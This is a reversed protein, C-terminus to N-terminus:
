ASLLSEIMPLRDQGWFPEDDGVGTLFFTPAGPVGRSIAEATADNLLQRAEPSKMADLLAPDLGLRKAVDQLVEPSAPRNHGWYAAMLADVLDPVKETPALLTLRLPDVTRLPFHTNFRYPVRWWEAWRQLDVTVNRRKPEPFTAVPVMPTGIEKFLAGLLFPRYILTTGTARAIRRVQTTGLYAFPSSYDFFVELTRESM